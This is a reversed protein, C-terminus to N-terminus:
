KAGDAVAGPHSRGPQPALATQEGETRLVGFLRRMENLAQRATAEVQALDDAEAQHDPGLRRRVAQVQITVVSISHSVIDHLERAIRTREDAAVLQAQPAQERELQAARSEAAEARDARM